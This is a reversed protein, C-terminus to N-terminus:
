FFVCREDSIRKNILGIYDDNLEYGIYRRNTKVCAVATTGSGMFPDLVIDEQDTSIEILKSIFYLNKEDQHQIDNYKNRHAVSSKIYSPIYSPYNYRYEQPNPNRKDNLWSQSTKIWDVKNFGKPKDGNSLVLVNQVNNTFRDSFMLGNKMICVSLINLLKFHEKAPIIWNEITLTPVFVFIYHNRKTIRKFESFWGHIQSYVFEPDDNYDGKYQADCGFPPDTIILDICHDSLENMGELCDINYIVDTKL